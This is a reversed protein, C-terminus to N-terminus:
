NWQITWYKRLKLLLILSFTHYEQECEHFSICPGLNYYTLQLM